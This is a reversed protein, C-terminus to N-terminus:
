KTEGKLEALRAEAAKRGEKTDPFFRVMWDEMFRLRFPITRIEFERHFSTRTDDDPVSNEFVQLVPDGIKCPIEVAKELRERLAANEALLEAYTKPPASDKLEDTRKAFSRCAHKAFTCILRFSTIMGSNKDRRYYKRVKCTGSRSEGNRVFNACDKCTFGEFKSAM